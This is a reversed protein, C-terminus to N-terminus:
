KIESLTLYSDVLENSKFLKCYTYHLLILVTRKPRKVCQWHHFVLLPQTRKPWLYQEENNSITQFWHKQREQVQLSDLFTQSFIDAYTEQWSQIHIKAISAADAPTAHRIHLRNM